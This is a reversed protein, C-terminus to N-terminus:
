TSNKIIEKLQTNPLSFPYIDDKTLMYTFNAGTPREDLYFINMLVSEDIIYNEIGNLQDGDIYNLNYYNTISSSVTDRV